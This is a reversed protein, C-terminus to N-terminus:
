SGGKDGSHKLSLSINHEEFFNSPERRLLKLLEVRATYPNIGIDILYQLVKGFAERRKLGRESLDRRDHFFDMLTSGCVCNRYLELFNCDEDEIAKISNKNAIKKTKKIYEEVSNYMLGCNACCKPFANEALAQLGTLFEETDPM